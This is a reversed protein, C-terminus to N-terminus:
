KHKLGHKGGSSKGKHPHFVDVAASLRALELPPRLTINLQEHVLIITLTVTTYLFTLRSVRVVITTLTYM